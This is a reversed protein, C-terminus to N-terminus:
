PLRLTITQGTALRITLTNASVDEVTATDLTDGARVLHVDGDGTVIATVGAAADTALGALRWPVAPTSASAEALGEPIETPVVPAAAPMAVDRSPEERAARGSFAFPNRGLDPRVRPARVAELALAPIPPTPTIVRRAQPRAQSVLTPPVVLSASLWGVLVAGAALLAAVRYSVTLM